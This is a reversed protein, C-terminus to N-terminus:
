LRFMRELEDMGSRHWAIITEVPVIIQEEGLFDSYNKAKYRCSMEAGRRTRHQSVWTIEGDKVSVVLFRPNM